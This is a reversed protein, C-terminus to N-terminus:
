KRGNMTAIIVGSIVLSPPGVKWGWRQTIQASSSRSYDNRPWRRCQRAPSTESFTLLFLGSVDAFVAHLSLSGQHNTHNINHIKWLFWSSSEAFHAASLVFVKKYDLCTMYIVYIICIVTYKRIHAHIDLHIKVERYKFCRKYVVQLSQVYWFCRSERFLINKLHFDEQWCIKRRFNRGWRGTPPRVVWKCFSMSMLIAVEGLQPTIPVWNQKQFNLRPHQGRGTVTVM